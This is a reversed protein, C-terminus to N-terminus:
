GEALQIARAIIYLLVISSGVALSFQTLIFFIREFVQFTTAIAFPVLTVVGVLGILKILPISETFIQETDLKGSSHDIFPPSSPM